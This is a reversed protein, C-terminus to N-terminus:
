PKLTAAAHLTGLEIRAGMQLQTESVELTAVRVPM